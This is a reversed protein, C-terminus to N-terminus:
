NYSITTDTLTKLFSIIDNIEKQSLDLPAESLTQQHINLGLGLGGGKNYFDLVEELTEFNGNHFYPATLEINRLTPTKFMGKIYSAEPYSNKFQEFMGWDFDLEKMTLLLTDM